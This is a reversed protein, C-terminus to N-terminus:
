EKRLDEVTWGTDVVIERANPDCWGGTSGPIERFTVTYGLEGALRYVYPRFGVGQVTGHVRVRVRRGPRPPAGVSM